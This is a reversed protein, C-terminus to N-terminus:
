KSHTNSSEEDKTNDQLIKLLNSHEVNGTKRKPKENTDAILNDEKSDKAATLMNHANYFDQLTGLLDEDVLNIANPQKVNNSVSIDPKAEKLPIIDEDKIDSKVQKPSIIDENKIDSKIQKPPIIDENKMDSKVQKPPNIDENKIDSKVQKTLPKDFYSSESELLANTYYIDSKFKSKDDDINTDYFEKDKDSSFFSDSGRRGLQTNPILLNEPNITEAKTDFFDDISERREAIDRLRDVTTKKVDETPKVQLRVPSPNNLRSRPEVPSKLPVGRHELGNLGWDHIDDWSDDSDSNHDNLQLEELLQKPTLGNFNKCRRLYNELRAATTEAVTVEKDSPLSIVSIQKKTGKRTDKNKTKTVNHDKKLEDIDPLSVTSLFKPRVPPVKEVEKVATSKICHNHIVKGNVINTVHHHTGDCIHVPEKRPIIIPEEVPIRQDNIDPIKDAKMLMTVNEKRELTNSKIKKRPPPIPPENVM